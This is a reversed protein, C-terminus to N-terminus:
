LLPLPVNVSTVFFAPRGVSPQADLATQYNAQLQLLTSSASQASFATQDRQLADVLGARVLADQEELNRQFQRLNNEQNRIGQLQSLLQLYSTVVNVYFQRRFEAFTRITYLANREVLSLGQTVIRAFANQMLPQTLQVLISSTVIQFGKKGNFEFVLQNAFSTLLQAGSLMTLNFGDLTSLQVQNNETKGAGFQRLITGQGGFGQVFFQFRALTVALSSFYVQEVQTQYDRSTFMAIRMASPGNLLVTGDSERAIYDPWNPNEIPAMGRKKWGHFEFPMGATVQFQRAASEDLPIPEHDADYSDGMRSRPDAEVPRPPLEWRGDTMRQREITYTERDASSRYFHRTCGLMMFMGALLFGHAWRSIRRVRPEDQATM